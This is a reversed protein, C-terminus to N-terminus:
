VDAEELPLMAVIAPDPSASSRQWTQWWRTRNREHMMAFLDRGRECELNVEPHILPNRRLDKIQKLLAVAKQHAGCAGCGAFVTGGIENDNETPQLPCEYVKMYRKMAAETLVPSRVGAATGFHVLSAAPEAHDTDIWRKM